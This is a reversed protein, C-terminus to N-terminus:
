IIELGRSGFDNLNQLEKLIYVDEEAVPGNKEIWVITFNSEQFKNRFSLAYANLAVSTRQSVVRTLTM